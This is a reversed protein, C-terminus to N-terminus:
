QGRNSRDQGWQVLQARKSPLLSILPWTLCSASVNGTVWTLSQWLTSPWWGGGAPRPTQLAM